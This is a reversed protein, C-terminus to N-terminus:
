QEFRVLLGFCCPFSTYLGPAVCYEFAQRRTSPQTIIGAKMWVNTTEKNKKTRVWASFQHEPIGTGGFFLYVLFPKESWIPSHSTNPTFISQWIKEQHTFAWAGALTLCKLACYILTKLKFTFMLKLFKVGSPSFLGSTIFDVVNFVCQIFLCGEGATQQDTGHWSFDWLAKCLLESKGCVTPLM